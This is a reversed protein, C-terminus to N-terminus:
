HGSPPLLLDDVTPRENRPDPEDTTSRQEVKLMLLGNITKISESIDKKDRAIKETLSRLTSVTDKQFSELDSKKCYLKESETSLNSIERSMVQLANEIKTIESKIDKSILSNRLEETDKMLQDVRSPTSTVRTENLWNELQNNNTHMMKDFNATLEQKCLEINNRISQNLREEIIDIQDLAYKVDDETAWPKTTSTNPQQVLTDATKTSIDIITKSGSNKNRCKCYIIICVVAVIIILTLTGASLGYNTHVHTHMANMEKEYETITINMQREAESIDNDIDMLISQSENVLSHTKLWKVAMEEKLKGDKSFDTFNLPIVEVQVEVSENHYSVQDIFYNISHLTCSLPVKLLGFKPIQIYKLKTDPCDIRGESISHSHVIINSHSIDYAYAKENKIELHRKPCIIHNNETEICREFDRQTLYRLNGNDYMLKYHPEELSSVKTPEILQITLSKGKNIM